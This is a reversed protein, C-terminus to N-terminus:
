FISMLEEKFNRSKAPDYARAFGNVTTFRPRGQAIPEGYIVLKIENM